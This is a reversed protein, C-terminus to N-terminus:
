QSAWGAQGTFEGSLELRKSRADDRIGPVVSPEKM